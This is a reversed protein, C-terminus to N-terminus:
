LVDCRDRCSIHCDGTCVSVRYTVPITVNLKQTVYIEYGGGYKRPRCEVSPDGSIEATMSGIEANPLLQVPLSVNAYQFVTRTSENENKDNKAGCAKESAM